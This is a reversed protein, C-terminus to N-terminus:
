ILILHRPDHGAITSLSIKIGCTTTNGPGHPIPQYHISMTLCFHALLRSPVISRLRLAETPLRNKRSILAYSALQKGDRNVVVFEGLRNLRNVFAM